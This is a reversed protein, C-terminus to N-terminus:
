RRDRGGSLLRTVVWVPVVIAAGFVFYTALNLAIEGVTAGLTSLIAKVGDFVSRWFGIPSVGLMGLVGGVILSAIVLKIVTRQPTRGLLRRKMRDDPLPQPDVM